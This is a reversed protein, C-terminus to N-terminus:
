EELLTFENAADIEKNRIKIFLFSGTLVLAGFLFWIILNNPKQKQTFGSEGVTANNLNSINAIENNTNNIQSLDNLNQNKNASLIKSKFVPTNIQSNINNAIVSNSDYAIHQGVRSTLDLSYIESNNFGTINPSLWVEKGAFVVSGAPPNFYKAGSSFTFSGLDVDKSSKNKIILIPARSTDIFLLPEIINLDLFTQKKPTLTWPNEMFKVTLRYDGLYEYTHSVPEGIKFDKEFGDGFNVRYLGYNVSMGAENRNDIDVLIPVGALQESSISIIFRSQNKPPVYTSGGSSGTAVTTKTQSETTTPDKLQDNNNTNGANAKKPTPEGAVWSIGQIQMTQKSTNDGAPWGSAFLVSDISQGNADNLYLNDGSNSLGTGFTSVLDAQINPVSNDDTREILYYQGATLIGSLKISLKKSESEIVYGTLNIDTSGSNYLEIWEDASGNQGGMWAIESFVIKPTEAYVFFLSPLIILTITITAFLKKM